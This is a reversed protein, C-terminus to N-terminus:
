LIAPCSGSDPPAIAQRHIQAVFATQEITGLVPSIASLLPNRKVELGAGQILCDAPTDLRTRNLRQTAFPLTKPAATFNKWGTERGSGPSKPSTVSASSNQSSSPRTSKIAREYRSMVCCAKPPHGFSPLHAYRMGVVDVGWGWASPLVLYSQQDHRM